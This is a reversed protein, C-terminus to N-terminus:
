IDLSNLFQNKVHKSLRYGFDDIQKLFVTIESKSIFKNRYNLFLVGLFGSIRLQLDSAVNRGKKEDIILIIDLTKALAIAEAEGKDVITYLNQLLESSDVKIVEIFTSKLLQERVSDKKIM